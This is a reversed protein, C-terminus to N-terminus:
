CHCLFFHARPKTEPISDSRSIESTHFAHDSVAHRNLPFIGCAAHSWAECLLKGFQLHNFKRNENSIMWSGCALYVNSKLPKFFARELPQLYHTTHSPLCLWVINNEAAFQLMEYGNIQSSQGDLMILTKGAPKRSM